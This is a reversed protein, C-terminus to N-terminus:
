NGDRYVPSKQAFSNTAPDLWISHEFIEVDFEFLVM